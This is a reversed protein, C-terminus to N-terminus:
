PATRAARIGWTFNRIITNISPNRGSVSLYFNFNSTEYFSGGRTVTGNNAAVSTGSPWNAVDAFGATTLTGDGHGGTFTLGVADLGVCMEWANGSLEMNGYFGAGSSERGSTATAFVGNRAPGLNPNPGGSSIVQGNAPVGSFAEAATGLGTLGSRLRPTVTTSGWAYEDQVSPLPGRSSKEFEMETMPRMGSWDLYAYYDAKNIASFPVNQGDAAENYTNNGSLDCGFTAPITNNLGPSQLKIYNDATSSAANQPYVFSNIAANHAIDIRSAQQDYTLTNLFDVWNENTLEYKMLYFSHYGMPFGAPVAPSGAAMASAPLGAAQKAGTIQNNYFPVGTITNGTRGDGFQFNGQPVYVVETAFVKFNFAGSGVLPGMKLTVATAAINGFGSASRRIFIGMSDGVTNIELVAGGITHDTALDSLKVHKWLNDINNQYKIFVWAADWNNPYLPNINNTTNWSNDWQITFSINSGTATINSVQINNAQTSLFAALVFLITCLKKM